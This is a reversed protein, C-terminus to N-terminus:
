HSAGLGLSGANVVLWVIGVLVAAGTWGAIRRTRDIRSLAKGGAPMRSDFFLVLATAFGFMWATKVPRDADPWEFAPLFDRLDIKGPLM